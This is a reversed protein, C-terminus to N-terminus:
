SRARFLSRTDPSVEGLFMYILIFEILALIYTAIVLGVFLTTDTIFSAIMVFFILVGAFRSLHTHFFLVKRFMVLSIAITFGFIVFFIKLYSLNPIIYAPFLYYLFWATSLYFVVDATADLHAGVDSAQNWLRALKGDLFDTIGLLTWSVFFVVLTELQVLLFLFPTGVLRSVSLVNPLNWQFPMKKM